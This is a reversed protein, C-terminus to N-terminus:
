QLSCTLMLVLASNIISQTTRPTHPLSRDLNYHISIGVGQMNEHKPPALFLVGVLGGSLREEGMHVQGKLVRIVFSM